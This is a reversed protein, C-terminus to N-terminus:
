GRAKRMVVYFAGDGGHEISAPETTAVFESFPKELCWRPANARLVSTGDRGKGTVVLLRKAGQAAQRSVFACLKEYAETQTLGHLDIKADIPVLAAAKRKVRFSSGSKPKTPLKTAKPEARLSGSVRKVSEKYDNWPDREDTM